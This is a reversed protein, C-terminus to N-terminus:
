GEAEEECSMATPASFAKRVLFEFFVAHVTRLTCSARLLGRAVTHLKMAIKMHCIALFREGREIRTEFSFPPLLFVPLSGHIERGKSTKSSLPPAFATMATVVASDTQVYTPVAALM